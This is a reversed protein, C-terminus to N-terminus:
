DPLIKTDMFLDLWTVFILGIPVATVLFYIIGYEDITIGVAEPKVIPFGITIILWSVVFGLIMSVVWVILRRVALSSM